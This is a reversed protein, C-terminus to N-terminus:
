EGLFASIQKRLEAAKAQAADNVKALCASAKSLLEDSPVRAAFAEPTKSYIMSRLNQGSDPDREGLDVFDPQDDFFSERFLHNTIPEHWGLYSAKLVERPRKIAGTFSYRVSSSAIPDFYNPTIFDSVQIGNVSYGFAAAQCPDCVEVLFDVRGQGPM